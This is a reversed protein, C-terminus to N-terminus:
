NECYYDNGKKCNDVSALQSVVYEPRMKPMGCKIDAIMAMIPALKATDAIQGKLFYNGMKSDSLKEDQQKEYIAHNDTIVKCTGETTDRDIEYPSPGRNANAYMQHGEGKSRFMEFLAFLIIFFIVILWISSGGGGISENSVSYDVGM